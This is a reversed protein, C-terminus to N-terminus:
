AAARKRRKKEELVYFIAVMGIALLAFTAGRKAESGVSSSGGDAPVPDTSVTQSPPLEPVGTPSTPAAGVAQAGWNVLADRTAADVIGDTRLNTSRNANSWAQFASLVQAQHAAAASTLELDSATGYPPANPTANAWAALMTRLQVLDAGTLVLDGGATQVSQGVPVLYHTSAWGVNGQGDKVQAFNNQNAGSATVHAGNQLQGVPAANTSPASRLNLYGSSLTVVYEGPVLEPGAPASTSQVASVQTVTANGEPALYAVSAWGIPGSDAQIFAFGNDLTGDSTVLEGNKLTGNVRASTNGADRVNLVSSVGVVVYRGPGSVDGSQAIRRKTGEPLSQLQPSLLALSSVLAPPAFM